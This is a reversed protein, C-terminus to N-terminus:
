FITEFLLEIIMIRIFESAVYDERCKHWESMQDYQILTDSYFLGEGYLFEQFLLIVITLNMM